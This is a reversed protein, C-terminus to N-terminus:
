RGKPIPVAPNWPLGGPRGGWLPQARLWDYAREYRERQNNLYEQERLYEEARQWSGGPPQIIPSEHPIPRRIEGSGLQPIPSSPVPTIQRPPGYLSPPQITPPRQEMRERLLQELWRMMEQRQRQYEEPTVRGERVWWPVQGPLQQLGSPDTANTPSNGVYRYINADGAQFRLPDESTFRGISVDFQRWGFQYLATQSDLEQATYKYRDGNGPNSEATIKGYADYDIHDLVGGTANWVDRVSGLHDTFYWDLQGSGIRAFVQDLADHYLRRSTLSGANDLDAWANGYEDFAYKEIVAATAGDGDADYKREIRNGLV